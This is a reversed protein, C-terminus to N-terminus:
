QLCRVPFSMPDETRCELPAALGATPQSHNSVMTAAKEPHPFALVAIADIPATGITEVRDKEIHVVTRIRKELFAVAAEVLTGTEDADFGGEFRFAADNEPGGMLVFGEHFQERLRELVDFGDARLGVRFGLTEGM